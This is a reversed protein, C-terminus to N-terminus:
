GEAGSDDPALDDPGIGLDDTGYDDTGYDDTGYDDTGYDGSGADVAWDDTGADDARGYGYMMANGLMEQLSDEDLEGSEKLETYHESVVRAADGITALVSVRWGGDGKVAVLGLDGLGLQKGVKSDDLCMKQGSSADSACVGAITVSEDGQEVVVHKATLRRLDSGIEESTFTADKATFVDDASVDQKEISRGYVALFRREATPLVDALPDIDGSSLAALADVFATGAAEPSAAAKGDGTPMAGRRSADAGIAYEGITMLPSVYWRGHERVTVVFAHDIGADGTPQSLDVSWPLKAELEAVAQTRVEDLMADSETSSAKSAELFSDVIKEADGDITLRGGVVSVKELGDGISVSTTRLGTLDIDLADVVKKYADTSSGSSTSLGSFADTLSGVEAPSLSGYAAVLDKDAVGHLMQEAAGAPTSSGDLKQFVLLWAALAAGGVVVVAAAAVGIWLGRRRRREVPPQVWTEEVQEQVPALSRLAALAADAGSSTATTPAGQPAPTWSGTRPQEQPSWSSAQAPAAPRTPHTPGDARAALAADVRPDGLSGLWALLAPEAAPNAAVIARLEPRHTAIRALEHAPAQPHAATTADDM